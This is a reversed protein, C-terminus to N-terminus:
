RVGFRAEEDLIMLAKHQATGVRQVPYKDPDYPGNLVLSVIEAKSKGLVYICILHSSNICEYTVSMRWTDKQPVYNAIVLRNNTHLGHTYPFLSATHGDDGMGLMMLDFKKSPVLKEILKEYELANEEINDEGKMRFIHETPIPLSALGAKMAMGYNSEPHDPPVSREDSWFFLIKSWDIQDRYPKQSLKSIIAKPTNGGSLAVTFVGHNKINKNGVEIFQKACYEITKESNGPIIIEKCVDM